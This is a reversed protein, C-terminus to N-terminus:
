YPFAANVKKGDTRGDTRGDRQERVLLQRLPVANRPVAVAPGGELPTRLSHQGLEFRAPKGGSIQARQQPGQGVPVSVTYYTHQTTERPSSWPPSHLRTRLLKLPIHGRTKSMMPM